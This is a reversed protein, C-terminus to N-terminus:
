TDMRLIEVEPPSILIESFSHMWDGTDSRGNVGKQRFQDLQDLNQLEIEFQLGAGGHARTMPVLLRAPLGHKGAAEVERRILDIARDRNVPLVDYSFRALYM